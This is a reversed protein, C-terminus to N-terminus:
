DHPTESRPKGARIWAIVEAAVRDVAADTLAPHVPLSLVEAGCRECERLAGARAPAFAAFAPQRHAPVPYLVQAAIGRAALWRVLGDRRRTRVAFQHFVPVIGGGARPPLQLDWGDLRSFYRQALHRRRRNEAELRRLRVRLIAAQLEDLRSNRGGAGASVHRKRWGYQRLARVASAIAAADTVVAGGDGLAALNKTPYFSFAAARGWTGVPRGGIRAGHAQACDEVLALGHRRALAAIADMACPQGYLHVPVVARVGAAARSALLAALRAPSLCLTAPDVDCFVPRAGAAVIAAVTASATNAPTVVGDGPRVGAARLAFELADTGNGVGVCHRRGSWAAFEREFAEVEPGLIYRGRALVRAVAARVAALSGALNARPDANAVTRQIDASM